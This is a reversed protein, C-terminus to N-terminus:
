YTSNGSPPLEELFPLFLSFVTGHRSPHDSTRLLIRGKHRDIIGSSIWLGLGTGNLEKTTYFPEFIRARVARSM